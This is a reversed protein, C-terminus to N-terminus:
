PNHEDRVKQIEAMKAEVLVDAEEKTAFRIDTWALEREEIKDGYYARERVRPIWEGSALQYSSNTYEINPM